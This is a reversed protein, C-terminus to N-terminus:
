NPPASLSQRIGDALFEALCEVATSLAGSKRHLYINFTPLDPFGEESTLIRM